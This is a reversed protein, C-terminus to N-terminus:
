YLRIFYLIILIYKLNLLYSLIIVSGKLGLGLGNGKLVQSTLPSTASWGYEAAISIKDHM